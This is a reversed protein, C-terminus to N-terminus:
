THMFMCFQEHMSALEMFMTGKMTCTRHMYYGQYHAHKYSSIHKKIAVVSVDLKHKISCRALMVILCEQVRDHFM